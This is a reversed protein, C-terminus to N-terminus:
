PLIRADRYQQLYRLIAQETDVFGHFGHSRIKTTSTVIDTERGLFFDAFSWSVLDDMRNAVLGHKQVIRDWVPGKDQMWGALAIPRVEGVPMDFLAAVKPWLWRWRFTDVDTVNYAQNRAAPATAMWAVARAFNTADSIEMLASWCAPKGPFDLPTGMERCMAAWVGITSVINRPREPSFDYIYDPRSASWTWRKGAQRERLLDEQSYYFNPPMHRPDDERAPTRVPRLWVDYWKLGEVLHVHELAPSAAEAADIMNRVMAVNPEVDEVGGEGFKARATYFAHTITHCGALARRTDAADLLDAKVFTLRPDASTGPNRSVGIVKWEPSELLVEILRKSAAGTAGAILATRQTM